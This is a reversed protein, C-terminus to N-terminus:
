KGEKFMKEILDEKEGGPATVEIRSRSSPTMGFGVLLARVEKAYAGAIQILPNMQAYGSDSRIIGLEAKEQAERWKTYATVLMELAIKDLDTFLGNELLQKSIERWAMRRAYGTMWNPPKNEEIKKPAAESKQRSKKLTGRRFKLITPVPKRGKM